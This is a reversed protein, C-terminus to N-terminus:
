TEQNANTVYLKNNIWQATIAQLRLILLQYYDYYRMVSPLDCSSPENWCLTIFADCLERSSHVDITCQDQSSQNEFHKKYIEELQRGIDLIRNLTEPDEAFNCNQKTDGLELSLKDLADSLEMEVLKQASWATNPPRPRSFKGESLEIPEVLASRAASSHSSQQKQHTRNSRTRQAFPKPRHWHPQPAFLTRSNSAHSGLACNCDNADPGGPALLTQKRSAQKVSYASARRLAAVAAM